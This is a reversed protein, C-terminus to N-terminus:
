APTIQPAYSYTDNLGKVNISDSSSGPLINRVYKSLPYLYEMSERFRFHRLLKGLRRFAVPALTFLKLKNRDTCIEEEDKHTRCYNDCKLM